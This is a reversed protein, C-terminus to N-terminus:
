DCDSEAPLKVVGGVAMDRRKRMDAGKGDAGIDFVAGAGVVEGCAREGVMRIRGWGMSGDNMWGRM